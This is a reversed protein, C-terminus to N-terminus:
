KWTGWSIKCQEEDNMYWEELCIELFLLLHFLIVEQGKSQIHLISYTNKSNKFDGIWLDIIACGTIWCEDHMMFASIVPM